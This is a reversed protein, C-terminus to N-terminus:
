VLRGQHLKLSFTAERQVLDPDHTIMLLANGKLVQQRCLKLIRQAAIYDIGSTPEDLIYMRKPTMFQSVVSLLRKEGQSLLYPSDERRHLLGAGILMQEATDRQEPTLIGRRRRGMSVCGYTIEEWVTHAVFQHEPQQFVYGIEEALTYIPINSIDQGRWYVMQGPARLLGMLLRSLTTKGSGNEGMLTVWDGPQLTFSVKHLAETGSPYAYSLSKVALLSIEEENGTTFRSSSPRQEIVPLAPIFLPAVPVAELEVLKPDDELAPISSSSASIGELDVLKLDDELAPISSSSAAVGELDVGKPTVGASLVPTSSPTSPHEAWETAPLLGLQVLQEAYSALLEQPTGDLVVAGGELVIVREAARAVDDFRGSACLLTRGQEHLAECLQVFQVQAAGDLSATADDFVLLRPALALVAAIAARQRQGGSLERVAADRHPTLGVAALAATVRHAIDAPPVRLNEPGFAVDAEVNGQVLQADADQFVIGIVHAIDALSAVAPDMGEVRVLGSRRGGGSRPLYGNLLQCLTSKGSGGRGLVAVWQGKPISLTIQNLVPESQEDFTYTLGQLEIATTSM